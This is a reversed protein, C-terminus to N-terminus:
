CGRDMIAQATRNIRRVVEYFDTKLEDEDYFIVNWGKRKLVKECKKKNLCDKLQIIAIQYPILALDIMFRGCKVNPTVYYNHKYLSRCLKQKYEDIHLIDEKRVPVLHPIKKKGFRLLPTKIKTYPFPGDKLEIKIM